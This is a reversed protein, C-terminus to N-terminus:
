KFNSPWILLQNTKEMYTDYGDRKLLSREDMMSCTTCSFMLNMALPCIFLYWYNIDISLTTFFLGWWFLIEGLYNPHRSYKWLGSQIFKGNNEESQKFRWLQNDAILELTVAMITLFSFLYTWFNAVNTSISLSYYIPLLSLNVQLTPYIHIGFLDILRPFRLSKLDVYRFDEDKLGEWRRMWNFTLRLAWYLIPIIFLSIKEYDLHESVPYLAVYFAIPIPAVSWFPDYFSSNSYISSALFVILTAVLHGILIMLWQDIHLLNICVLFAALFALLYVIACTLLAKVKM